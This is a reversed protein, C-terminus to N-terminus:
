MLNRLWSNLPQYSNMRPASWSPMRDSTPWQWWAPPRPARRAPEREMKIAAVGQFDAEEQFGAVAAFERDGTLNQAQPDSALMRLGALFASMGRGSADSRLAVADGTDTGVTLLRGSLTGGAEQLSGAFV